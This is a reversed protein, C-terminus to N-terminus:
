SGVDSTLCWRRPLGIRSGTCRPRPAQLSLWELTNTGDKHVTDVRAALWDGSGARKARVKVGKYFKRKPKAPGGGATRGAEPSRIKAAPMRVSYTDAWKGAWNVRYTGDKRVTGITGPYWLGDVDLGEVKDGKNWEPM